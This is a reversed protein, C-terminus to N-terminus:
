SRVLCGFLMSTLWINETGGAWLISHHGGGGGCETGNAVEGGGAMGVFSLAACGRM